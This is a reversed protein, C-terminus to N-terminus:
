HEGASSSLNALRPDPPLAWFPLIRATCACCSRRASTSLTNTIASLLATRQASKTCFPAARRWSIPSAFRNASRSANGARLSPKLLGTVNSVIQAAIAQPEPSGSALGRSIDDRIRELATRAADVVLDRGVRAALEALAPLGLLEDVPPIKRLLATRHDRAA